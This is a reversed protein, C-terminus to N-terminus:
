FRPLGSTRVTSTRRPAAGGDTSTFSPRHRPQLPSRRGRTSIPHTTSEQAERSSALSKAPPLLARGFSCCCEPNHRPGQGLITRESARESAREPPARPPLSACSLPTLALADAHAPVPIHQRAFRAIPPRLSARTFAPATPPPGLSLSLPLTQLNLAQRRSDQRTRTRGLANPVKPLRSATRHKAAASTQEAGHRTTARNSEALSHSALCQELYMGIQAAAPHVAQVAGDYPIGAGTGGVM